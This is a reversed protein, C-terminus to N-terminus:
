RRVLWKGIPTRWDGKSLLELQSVMKINEQELATIIQPIESYKDTLRIIDNEIKQGSSVKKLKYLNTGESKEEISSFYNKVSDLHERHYNACKLWSGWRTQIPIPILKLKTKKKWDRKRKNANKFYKQECTFLKNVLFFEKTISNCMLSMAHNLCTVHSLNPFILNMGKM